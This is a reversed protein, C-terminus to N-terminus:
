NVDWLGPSVFSEVMAEQDDPLEPFFDIGTLGEIEDISTINRRLHNDNNTNSRNDHPLLISITDIFGSPRRHIIIKYFHTPIAVRETPNVRDADEDADRQENGDRDFVAGTIVHIGDSVIAWNRVMRELREWVRQNFNPFQPAMNSFIFSNDMATQTRNLDSRPVMHGRDFIPEEYDECMSASEDPLRPDKRFCDRRTRQAQADQRTLRYAVWLPLRLDDDHWTVWERQHILHEGTANSPATHLGFPLHTDEATQEQQDTLQLRQNAQQERAQSIQCDRCRQAYAPFLTLLLAVALLLTAIRRITKTSTQPNM